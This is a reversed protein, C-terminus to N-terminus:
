PPAPLDLQSHSKRSSDSPLFTGCHSEWSAASSTDRVTKSGLSSDVQSGQVCVCALGVVLPKRQGQSAQDSPSSKPFILRHHPSRTPSHGWPRRGLDSSPLSLLRDSQCCAPRGPVEGFAGEGVAAIPATFRWKESSVPDQGCDEDKDMAGPPTASTPCLWHERVLWPYPGARSGM